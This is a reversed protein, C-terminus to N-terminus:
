TAFDNQRKFIYNIIQEQTVNESFQLIKANKLFQQITSKRKDILQFSKEIDTKELHRFDIRKAFIM